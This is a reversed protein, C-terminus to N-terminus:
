GADARLGKVLHQAQRRLDADQLVFPVLTRMAMSYSGVQNAFAVLWDHDEMGALAEDDIQILGGEGALRARWCKRLVVEPALGGPLFHIGDPLGQKKRCDGDLVVRIKEAGPTVDLNRALNVLASEGSRHIAFGCITLFGPDIVRILQHCFERAAIDEFILLTSNRREFGLRQAARLPDAGEEVEWEPNRSVFKVDGSWRMVVEPSRSTVILQLSRQRIAYCLCELLRAQSYHALHAEPEEILILSGAPVRWLRWILYLACLEGRGMQLTSYTVEAVRASFDPIAEDDETLGTAERVEISEYDKGVLYSSLDLQVSDFNRFGSGEFFDQYLMDGTFRSILAGTERPPDILFNSVGLGTLAGVSVTGEGTPRAGAEGPPRNFRLISSSEANLHKAMHDLLTSKGAGNRGTIITLMGAMTIDLPLGLEDPGLRAIRGQRKRASEIAAEAEHSRM